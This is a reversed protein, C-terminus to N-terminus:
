NAVKSSLNYQMWLRQVKTSKGTLVVTKPTLVLTAEMGSNNYPHFSIICM